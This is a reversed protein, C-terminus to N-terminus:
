HLFTVSMLKLGRCPCTCVCMCVEVCIFVWVCVCWVCVCSIFFYDTTFIIYIHDRWCIMSYDRKHHGSIICHRCLRISQLSDCPCGARANTQSMLSVAICGECHWLCHISHYLSVPWIVLSRRCAERHILPLAACMPSDQGALSSCFSTLTWWAVWLLM